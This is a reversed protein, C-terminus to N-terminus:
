GFCHSHQCHLQHPELELQLCLSLIFAATTLLLPLAADVVAVQAAYWSLSAAKINRAPGDIELDKLNPLHSLVVGFELDLNVGRVQM